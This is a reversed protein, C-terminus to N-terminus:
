PVTTAIAQPLADFKVDGLNRAREHLPRLDVALTKGTTWAVGAVGKGKRWGVGSSTRTHPLFFRVRDAFTGDKRCLWVQAALQHLEVDDCRDAIEAAVQQCNVLLDRRRETSRRSQEASRADLAKYLGSLPAYVACGVLAGFPADWPAWFAKSPIEAGLLTSGAALYIGAGATVINLPLEYRKLADRATRVFRM